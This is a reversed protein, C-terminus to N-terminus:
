ARKEPTQGILALGASVSTFEGGDALKEAGFMDSIMKRVVPVFSTGGTMFVHDIQDPTLSSKKLVDTVGAKIKAIDNAIWKEFDNRKVTARLSVGPADFIFDAQPSQSLASKTASIARYLIFGLEDNIITLLKQLADPTSSTRLIDEIERITKPAKLMSLLHWSAFTRYVSIPMDMRKGYSEYTSGKGLQPAIIHDILRYDFIDGAIGVGAHAIPTVTKNDIHVVSFDSTGGGFDAVLVHASQSTREAFTFAAGTPEFALTVPGFGARKYADMLRAIALNEDPDTGAFTVPRGSIVHYKKPDPDLNLALAARVWLDKLFLAILDELEFRRSFLRTETFLASGLYTKISQIFRSEATDKLYEDIANQGSAHHIKNQEAWFCLLTRYTESPGTAWPFAATRTQGDPAAVSVVSNTTGFDIGITEPRMIAEQAKHRPASM